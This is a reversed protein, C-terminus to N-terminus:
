SLIISEINKKTYVEAIRHMKEISEMIEDKARGAMPVSVFLKKM